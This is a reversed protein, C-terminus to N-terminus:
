VSNKRQTANMIFTGEENAGGGAGAARAVAATGDSSGDDWLGKRKFFLNIL